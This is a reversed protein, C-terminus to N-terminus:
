TSVMSPFRLFPSTLFLLLLNSGRLGCLVSFLSEFQSCYSRARRKEGVLDTLRPLELINRQGGRSFPCVGKHRRCLLTLRSSPSCVYLELNEDKRILYADEPCALGARQPWGRSRRESERWSQCSMLFVCHGTHLTNMGLTSAVCVGYALM